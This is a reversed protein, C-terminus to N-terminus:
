RQYASGCPSVPESRDDSVSYGCVYEFYDIDAEVERGGVYGSITHSGSRSLPAGCKPCVLSYDRLLENLHGLQGKLQDLEQEKKSLEEGHAEGDRRLADIEGIAIAVRKSLSEALVDPSLSELESIRKELLQNRQQVLQIVADKQEVLLRYLYFAAVIYGVLSVIQTYFLLEITM